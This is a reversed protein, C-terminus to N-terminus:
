RVSMTPSAAVRRVKDLLGEVEDADGSVAVLGIYRSLVILRQQVRYCNELHTRSAFCAYVDALRPSNEGQLIQLGLGVEGEVAFLHAPVVRSEELVPMVGFASDRTSQVRLHRHADARVLTNRNNGIAAVLEISPIRSTAQTCAHTHAHVPIM